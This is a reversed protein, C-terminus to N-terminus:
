PKRSPIDLRQRKGWLNKRSIGLMRAIRTENYHPQYKNVFNICYEELSALRYTETIKLIPRLLILSAVFVIPTGPYIALFNFDQKAALGVSGYFSWSTAYVGLSLTCVLAHSAVTGAIWARATATAIIFRLGLYLVGVLSLQWLEFQM